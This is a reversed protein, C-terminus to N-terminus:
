APGRKQLMVLVPDASATTTSLAVGVSSHTIGTTWTM